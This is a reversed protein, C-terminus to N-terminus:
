EQRGELYMKIREKSSTIVRQRQYRAASEDDAQMHDLISELVNMRETFAERTVRILQRITNIEEHRRPWKMNVIDAM